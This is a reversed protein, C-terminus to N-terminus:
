SQDVQMSPRRSINSPWRGHRTPWGMGTAYRDIESQKFGQAFMAQRISMGQGVLRKAAELRLSVLAWQAAKRAERLEREREMVARRERAVRRRPSGGLARKVIQGIRQFSVGYVRALEKQTEGALARAVIEINRTTQDGFQMARMM